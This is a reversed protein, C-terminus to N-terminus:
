AVDNRVGSLLCDAEAVGLHLGFMEHETDYAHAFSRCVIYEGLRVDVEGVEPVVQFQVQTLLGAFRSIDVGQVERRGSFPDDAQHANLAVGVTSVHCARDMQEHSDQALADIIHCLRQCVQVAYGVLRDLLEIGFGFPHHSVTRLLRIILLRGSAFRGCRLGVRGCEIGIATVERTQSKLTFEIRNDSAFLLYCTCQTDERAAPLVIGNQEAFGSHALGSDDLSQRLLEDAGIHGFQVVFTDDREIHRHEHSTRHVASLKLFTHLVDQLFQASVRLDDQEDVLYVRRDLFVTGQLSAELLDDHRRSCRFLRLRDEFTQRGVIAIIVM